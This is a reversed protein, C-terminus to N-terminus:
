ATVFFSLPLTVLCILTLWGSITLMMVIAGIIGVFSSILQGLSQQLTMSINDIDNTMRSMIEGHTRGDFYKLPLRALKDNMDRRMVFVTKQAVGAMTYQSIYSFLRASSM